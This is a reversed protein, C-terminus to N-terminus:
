RMNEQVTKLFYKQLETRKAVFNVQDLEIHFKIFQFNQGTVFDSPQM